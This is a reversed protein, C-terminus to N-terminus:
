RLCRGLRELNGPRPIDGDHHVGLGLHEVLKLRGSHDVRDQGLAVQAGRAVHCRGNDGHPRAKGSRDIAISHDLGHAPM